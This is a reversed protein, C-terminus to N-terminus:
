LRRRFYVQPGVYADEPEYVEFGAELLGRMSPGNDRSTYTVVWRAGQRRAWRVRVAILRRHVGRGRAAPLVGARRLFVIDPAPQAAVAFGVPRGGSTALWLEADTLVAPADDPFCLRDLRGVTGRDATRRIAVRM